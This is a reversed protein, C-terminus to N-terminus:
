EVIEKDECNEDETDGLKEDEDDYLSEVAEPGVLEKLIEKSNNVYGGTVPYKIEKTIYISLKEVLSWVFKVRRPIELEGQVLPSPGAKKNHFTAEFQTGDQMTYWTHRSLERPAHGATIPIIRGPLNEGAVAFRDDKNM